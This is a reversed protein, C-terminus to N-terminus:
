LADLLRCACEGSVRRWWRCGVAVKLGGNCPTWCDAITNGVLVAGGDAVVKLGGNCADNSHYFM